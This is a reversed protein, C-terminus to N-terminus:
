KIKINGLIGRVIARGIRGSISGIAASIISKGFKKATNAVGDTITGSASFREKQRKSLVEYASESEILKRYKSEFSSEQIINKRTIEDIPGIKSNPIKVSIEEVQTPIGTEDLVSVLAKGVGLETIRSVTDIDPNQRFTDAAAKVAKQDKPTFARLAHQIKLGLQSLVVEPVDSPNQTVFYVGVGKSRILRVLQEIKQLLSKPADNFLLHAEDFFFVLKPKELDGVEPLNEFLESLLWLLIISYLKPTQILKTADLLHIVGHKGAVFFENICIAPEGFFNDGGQAQLQMISRQIAGLTAKTINGYESKIEKLNESCWNILSIFDKLDILALEHDDAIKFLSFIVAEQIENLELIQSLLIPGIEIVTTRLPTGTNGFVDWFATNNARPIYEGLNLQDWKSKLKESLIGPASLGSLDGKIDAAFVNVGNLAFQEALNQLTVTKGTGTAGTILGHRNSMKLNLLVEKNEPDKGILISNSM